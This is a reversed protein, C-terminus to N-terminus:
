LFWKKNVKTNETSQVLVPNLQLLHLWLHSIWFTKIKKLKINTYYIIMNRICRLKSVQLISIGWKRGEKFYWENLESCFNICFLNTLDISLSNWVFLIHFFQRQSIEQLIPLLLYSQFLMLSISTTLSSIPSNPLLIHQIINQAKCIFKAKCIFNNHSSISGLSSLFMM